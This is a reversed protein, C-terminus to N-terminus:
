CNYKDRYVITGDCITYKVKGFMTEGIFPSNKAKSAFEDDVVWPEDPDFIVIDAKGGDRIVGADLGYIKAPNVSMHEIITALRNLRRSKPGADLQSLTVGLATELGIVGSPAKALEQNKEEITHPAHDTSILEICGSMIGEQIRQCDARTRLPPNMKALTGKEIADYETLTFHHPTAEAHINNYGLKRYHRVIEVGEVTSIHQIVISAGTEAALKADRSIMSYEAKAEAGELGLGNSIVKSANFGPTQIYQPDEEHFSIPVGLEKAKQMAAKVIEVDKIPKGDDTFGVAGAEVLAAMDTLEEGKMGLTVNACAYINIDTQAGRDLVYKLTEVNDIPPATNAMMVVSTYGGTKAAEAGTFIDEKHTQGPDRFHVHADVLGPAVIMGSADIVEDPSLWLWESSTKAGSSNKQGPKQDFSRKDTTPEMAVVKGDDILIDYQGSKGAPNVVTGGFIMIRM